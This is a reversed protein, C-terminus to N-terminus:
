NVKSRQQRKPYPLKPVYKAPEPQLVVRQVEVWGDENEEVMKPSGKEKMSDLKQNIYPDPM